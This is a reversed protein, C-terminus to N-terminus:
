SVTYDAIKWEQGELVFTLALNVYKPAGRIELFLDITFSATSDSVQYSKFTMVCNTFSDGRNLSFYSTFDRPSNDAQFATSFHQYASM